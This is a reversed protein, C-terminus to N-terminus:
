SKVAQADAWRLMGRGHDEGLREMLAELYAREQTSLARRKAAKERERKRRRQDRTATM